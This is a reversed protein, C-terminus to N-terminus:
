SSGSGKSFHQPGDWCSPVVRRAKNSPARLCCAPHSSSCSGRGPLMQATPTSAPLAYADSHRCSHEGCRQVCSLLRIKCRQLQTACNTLSTSAMWLGGRRPTPRPLEARASQSRNATTMVDNAPEADAPRPERPRDRTSRARRGRRSRRPPPRADDDPCARRVDEALSQAASAIAVGGYTQLLAVQAAAPVYGQANMCLALASPLPVPAPPMATLAEASAVDAAAAGHAPDRDICALEAHLFRLITSPLAPAARRLAGALEAFRTGIRPHSQWAQTAAPTMAGAGAHLLPVFLWSCTEGPAASAPRVDQWPLPAVGSAPPVVQRADYGTCAGGQDTVPPTSPPTFGRTAEGAADPAMAGTLADPAEGRPSAFPTITSLLDSLTEAADLDAQRDRLAAPRTSPLLAASCPPGPHASEGVRRGHCPHPTLKTSAPAARDHTPARTAPGCWRRGCRRRSPSGAFLGVHSWSAQSLEDLATEGGQLIYQLVEHRHPDQTRAALECMLAEWNSPTHPSPRGGALAVVASVARRSLLGILVGVVLWGWGLALPGFGPTFYRPTAGSCTLAAHAMSERCTPPLSAAWWVASSAASYAGACASLLQGIVAASM